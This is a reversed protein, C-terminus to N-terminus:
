YVAHPSKLRAPRVRRSFGLKQQTHVGAGKGDVLTIGIKPGRGNEGQQVLAPGGGAPYIGVRM